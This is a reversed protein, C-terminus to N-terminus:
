VPRWDSRGTGYYGGSYAEGRYRRADWGREFDRRREDDDEYRSGFRGRHEM